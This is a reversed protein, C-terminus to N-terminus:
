SRQAKAFLIHGVPCPGSGPSAVWALAAPLDAVVADQGLQACIAASTAPLFPGAGGRRHAGSELAHFLVTALRDRPGEGPRAGPHLARDSRHLSQDGGGPRLRGGLAEDVALRRAQRLAPRAASGGRRLALDVPCRRAPRPFAVGSAANSCPSPGACWTASSIPWSPTTPARLRAESFDSDEFPRLHRLLYHRVPETGHRQWWRRPISPTAWPSASRGDTWPSTATCSCTPPCRCGRRCCSPRGTSPTSASSARAWARARPPRRGGLLPQYAAGGRAWGLANVYNSLADFWVYVVQEPDDPVPIGWGRARSRARSVSIDELGGALFGLVENRRSAPPSRCVHGGRDPPRLATATARCASSGTRRRSRSPRPATSPVAATACTPRSSFRECGVCYLGRYARKYLDGARACARWLAEVGERHRADVSTRIFDDYSLDLTTASAPSAAARERAM